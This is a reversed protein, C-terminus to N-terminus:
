LEEDRGFWFLVKELFELLVCFLQKKDDRCVKTLFRQNTLCKDELCLLLM